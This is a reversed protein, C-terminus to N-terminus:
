VKRVQYMAVRATRGDNKGVRELRLNEVMFGHHRSLEMGIRKADLSKGDYKPDFEGLCEHLDNWANGPGQRQGGAEIDGILTRMTKPEEKPYCDHWVRLLRAMASRTLDSEDDAAYRSAAPDDCGAWVLGHRVLASWREFSGIESLGAQKPQGALMYAKLITLGAVALAPRNGRIHQRLDPINFTRAEPNAVMPDLRIPLVRRFMDGKLTLNNGTAMLVAKFPATVRSNTGLVRDTMEETTIAMNLASSGLAQTVNDILVVADGHVAITFLRKREEDDDKTQSYTTPLRGTGILSVCHALLTKGSGPKTGSFLWMPIPGDILHRGLLTLIAAIVSSLQSPDEFDFEDFLAQLTTLAGRADVRDPHDPVPPFTCGNLDLYFGTDPDYGARDIVTGDPRLTPSYVIGALTPFRWGDRKILTSPVWKPPLTTVMGKKRGDYKKWAATRSCMEWLFESAIPVITSTDSSRRMWKPKPGERTIICLTKARQFVVPPSAKMMADEAADIVAEVRTTIEIVPLDEQSETSAEADGVILPIERDNAARAPSKVQSPLPQYNPNYRDSGQLAKAITSARYSSREWKDRMLGSQRFLADIPDKQGGTWFALHGCLALDAESRSSYGSTDGEWLARVKAGNEAAFMKDLLEQDSLNIPQPPCGQKTTTPETGFIYRHLTETELQRAEITHLTGALHHGTMCFFRATDYIEFKDKRRGTPPLKAKVIIHLGTGSQSVETYSDLRNVIHHARADLRGTEPDVVKDLDVGIYPDSETFVFGVGTLGCRGVAELAEDFTAWTQPNTTSAQGGTHPNIPLKTSKGDRKQLHWAVWQPTDRLEQPIYDIYNNLIPTQSGDM